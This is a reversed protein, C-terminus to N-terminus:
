AVCIAPLSRRCNARSDPPNMCFSEMLVTSKQSFGLWIWAYACDDPTGLM